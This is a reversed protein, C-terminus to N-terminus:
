IRINPVGQSKMFAHGSYGSLGGRKSQMRKTCVVVVVVIVCLVTMLAVGGLVSGLITAIVIANSMPAPPSVSNLTFLPDICLIYLPFLSFLYDCM